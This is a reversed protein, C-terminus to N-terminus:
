DINQETPSDVQEGRLIREVRSFIDQLQAISDSLAQLDRGEQELWEGYQALATDLETNSM